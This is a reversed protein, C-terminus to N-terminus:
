GSNAIADGFTLTVNGLKFRGRGLSPIDSGLTVTDTGLMPTDSGPTLTAVGLTETVVGLMVVVAGLEDSPLLGSVGTSSLGDCLGGAPLAGADGPWCSLSRLFSCTVYAGTAPVVVGPTLVAAVFAGAGVPPEDSV